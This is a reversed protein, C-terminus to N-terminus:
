RRSQSTVQRSGSESVSVQTAACSLCALVFTMADLLHNSLALGAGLLSLLLAIICLKFIKREM